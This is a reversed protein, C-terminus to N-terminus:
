PKDLFVDSAAAAQSKMSQVRHLYVETTSISSHGLRQQVEYIDAGSSLLITAHAHRLDHTRPNWKIGSDNVAHKWILHWADWSLVGSQDRVTRVPKGESIRKQRLFEQHAVKCLACRCKGKNYSRETGHTFTYLGNTWSDGEVVKRPTGQVMVRRPFMWEDDGIKHLHLYTQLEDALAESLPVVRDKGSKTGDVIEHRSKGGDTSHKFGLRVVRRRVHIERSNVDFDSRKLGSAEGFRLGSGVLFTAFFKTQPSPLYEVIKKFESPDLSQFKKSRASPLRINHAPNQDVYEDEILMNFMSGIVAKARHAVAVHNSDVLPRTVSRVDRTTIEEMPKSGLVPDIHLTFTSEYGIRTRSMTRTNKLFVEHFYDHMTMLAHDNSERAADRAAARKAANLAEQKETYSGASRLKGSTDRYRALWKGNPRKEAYMTSRETLLYTHLPTLMNLCSALIAQMYM